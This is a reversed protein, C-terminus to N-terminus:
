GNVFSLDWLVGNPAAHIKFALPPPNVNDVRGFFPSTESHEILRVSACDLDYHFSTSNDFLWLLLPFGPDEEAYVARQYRARFRNARHVAARFDAAGREFRGPYMGTRSM